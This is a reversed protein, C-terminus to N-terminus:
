KLDEPHVAESKCLDRYLPIEEYPVSVAPNVAKVVPHSKIDDDDGFEYIAREPKELIRAIRWDVDFDHKAYNRILNNCYASWTGFEPFCEKFVKDEVELYALHGPHNRYLAFRERLGEAWFPRFHKSDYPRECVLLNIMMSLRNHEIQVSGQPGQLGTYGIFELGKETEVKFYGKSLNDPDRM